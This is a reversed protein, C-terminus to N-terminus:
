RQTSNLAARVADSNLFAEYIHRQLPALRLWVVVDTKKGMRGPRPREGPRQAAGDGADGGSPLVAAKERRLLYPATRQRLEAAKAAGAERQRAFADRDQGQQSPHSLIAHNIPPNLAAAQRGSQRERM